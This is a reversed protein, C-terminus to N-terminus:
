ASCTSKAARRAAACGPSDPRAAELRLRADHEALSRANSGVLMAVLTTTLFALGGFILVITTRLKLPKNM